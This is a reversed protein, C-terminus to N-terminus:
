SARGRQQGVRGMSVIAVPLHVGRSGIMAFVINLVAGQFIRHNLLVLSFCPLGFAAPGGLDLWRGAAGHSLAPM